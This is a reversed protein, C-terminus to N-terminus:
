AYGTRVLMPHIKPLIREVEDYTRTRWKQPDAPRVKNSVFRRHENTFPLQLTDLVRGVEGVPDALVDEYRIDVRRRPDLQERFPLMGEMAATYQRAAVEEVPKGNLERWGPVLDLRWHGPKMGDVRFSDSVRYWPQPWTRWVVCMSSVIARGDRLIFLYTADPFLKELYPLRFVNTPTKDMFRGEGALLRVSWGIFRREFWRIDGPGLTPGQDWGKDRPHHFSEWLM